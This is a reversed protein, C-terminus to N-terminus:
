DLRLLSIIPQLWNPTVEVDSNLLVFYDAEVRKLAENYGKAFGYNVPLAIIRIAPFHEQLFAVSDDSSANDAVYIEFNSYTSALVSPVFKQLYSRGNWNLIVIAVKPKM